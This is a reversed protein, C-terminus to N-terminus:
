PHHYLVTSTILCSFVSRSPTSSFNHHVVNSSTASNWHGLFFSTLHFYNGGCHQWTGTQQCPCRISNLYWNLHNKEKGSCDLQNRNLSRCQSCLLCHRWSVVTEYDPAESGSSPVKSRLWIGDACNLEGTCRQLMNRTACTRHGTDTVKASLGRECWRLKCAEDKNMLACVRGSWMWTLWPQTLFTTLTISVM